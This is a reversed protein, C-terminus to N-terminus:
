LEGRNRIILIELIALLIALIILYNDLYNKAEYSDQRVIDPSDRNQDSVREM